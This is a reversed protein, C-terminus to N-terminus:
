PCFIVSLGDSTNFGSGGAGAPDRFWFQWNWTDGAEIQGPGSDLPPQTYDLPLIVTGFADILVPPRIRFLGVGGAGVCLYGDGFPLQVQAPGYFFIGFQNPVAGSSHLALDNAAVSTTGSWGIVAGPGASNPSSVCHNMPDPCLDIADLAAELDVFPGIHEGSGGQPIGTAILLDRLGAPSLVFGAQALVYSQIAVCAGAVFPSASSTGGFSSTYAQHTDGGYQAFSGYGLSFVSEGWGQVNVRSGYTSFYLKGHTTSASGAGVIIAGSDGRARYEDYAPGDLNQDGNGAAAVVIVGADTGTKTVTWVAPDLEAPGYGGGAGTTQMELLVVDGADSDAIAHTICTVRRSGEEDSWEPWTYVEAEPVIGSCGYGNDQSSTEGLVATGHHHWGNSYVWGPITQGPEIHIDIDNLDEHDPDWGYECDSLRIGLGRAGLSWAYDVDIGPDPGRYTQNPVLDRTTPPIDGPPPAGLTQIYAWEVISLSQLRNGVLEREETTSGPWRVIMMGALDPQVNGSSSAARAELDALLGEPLAILPSFELPLALEMSLQELERLDAGTSSHVSGSGDVRVRAGDVFKVILRFGTERTSLTVRPPASAAGLSSGPLPLARVESVQLPERPRLEQSAAASSSVVLWLLLPAKSVM